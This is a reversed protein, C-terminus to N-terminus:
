AAASAEVVRIKVEPFRDQYHALLEALIGGIPQREGAVEAHRDFDDDFGTLRGDM